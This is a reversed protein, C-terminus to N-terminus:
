YGVVPVSQRVHVIADSGYTTATIDLTLLGDQVTRLEADVYKELISYVYMMYRCLYNKTRVDPNVAPHEVYQICYLMM